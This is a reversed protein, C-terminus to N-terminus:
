SSSQAKPRQIASLFYGVRRYIDNATDQFSAYRTEEEGKVVVPDPISWHIKAPDGPFMPCAERARDCVTIIYDFYQGLVEELSKSRQRSIDIGMAGAAKIALPHVGTPHTGASLVEVPGSVRSRLIGESLQSRASNHTCLFLIRLPFQYTFQGSPNPSILSPHLAMGSMRYLEGVRDLDLSYYIERGDAISRHEQVLGQAQLQHLHYSVANQPRGVQHVLEQVRLDTETLLSVIQWRIDDSLLHFLAPAQHLSMNQSSVDFQIIDVM